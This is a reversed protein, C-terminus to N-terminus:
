ESPAPSDLALQRPEPVRDGRVRHPLDQVVGPDIWRGRRAPGVQRSSRAAWACAITAQSKRTTSVTSSLRSYASTNMSCPVRLSCRAPTVACGLPAHVTCCARLRAMSRLSRRARQPEQNVIAIREEGGSEALHEFGLSQPDDGGRRPRRPHVGDALADDPGQAAFQQVPDQDEAFAVQVQHDALVRGMVGTVPRVLGPSLPGGSMSVCGTWSM